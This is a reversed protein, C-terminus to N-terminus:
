KLDWDAGREGWKRGENQFTQSRGSERRPSYLKSLMVSLVDLTQYICVTEIILPYLYSTSQFLDLLFYQFIKDWNSYHISLQQASSLRLEDHADCLSTDDILQSFLNGFVQAKFIAVM